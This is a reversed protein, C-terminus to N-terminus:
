HAVGCACIKKAPNFLKAFFNTIKFILRQIFNGHCKCTCPETPEDPTSPEDPEPKEFEYGCGYDCLNDGDDDKHAVIPLPTIEGVIKSMCEAATCVEYQVGFTSCSAPITIIQSIHTDEGLIHINAFEPWVCDGNDIDAIEKWQEETGCFYVDKIEYYFTNHDIKKVSNPIIVSNLSECNYFTSDAICVTGKKIHYNDSIPAKIAVLHKGIYLVGNEWNEYENYYATRSFANSGISTVSDPITISKLNRCDVFAGSDISTVGYPITISELSDCNDFADFGITKVSAPITISKLKSCSSFACSPISTVSDPITISKLRYCGRFAEDAITLTGNKVNYNGTITYRAEILYKGIYLVDDEWNDSNRYYATDYFAECGISTVSDPIIINDLYTCGYFVEAGIYNIGDRIVLSKIKNKNEFPVPDYEYNYTGGSGYVVLMGDNYLIYYCNTGLKGEEIIEIAKECVDCCSDSNDDRHGQPQIKRIRKLFKGCVSCREGETYGSEECTPSIAPVIEKIHYCASESFHINASELDDNGSSISIEDWDESTGTYYVDILNPCYCFADAQIDTISVPITIEKLNDCGYFAYEEITMVSKSLEVSVLNDCFSFCGSTTIGEEIVVEKVSCSLFGGEIQGSGSIVLKGTDSDYTWYADDGCQGFPELDFLGPDASASVAFLVAMIVVSLLLGLKRMTNKM